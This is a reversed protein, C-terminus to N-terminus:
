RALLVAQMPALEGDRAGVLPRHALGGRQAGIHDEEVQFVGHGGVVLLGRPGVDDLRQTSM